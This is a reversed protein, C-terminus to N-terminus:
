QEKKVQIGEHTRRESNEYLLQFELKLLLYMKLIDTLLALLFSIATKVVM